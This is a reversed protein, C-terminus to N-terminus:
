IHAFDLETVLIRVGTIWSNTKKKAVNMIDVIAGPGYSISFCHTLFLPIFFILFYTIDNLFLTDFLLTFGVCLVTPLCLYYCPAILCRQSPNLVESHPRLTFLWIM